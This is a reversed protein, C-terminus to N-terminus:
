QNKNLSHLSCGMASFFDEIRYPKLRFKQPETNIPDIPFFKSEEFNYGYLEYNLYSSQPLFSNPVTVKYYEYQPMLTFEYEGSVDREYRSSLRYWFINTFFSENLASIEWFEELCYIFYLKYGTHLLANPKFDRYFDIRSLLDYEPSLCDSNKVTLRTYIVNLGKRRWYWGKRVCPNMFVSLEAFCNAGKKHALIKDCVKPINSRNFRFLEKFGPGYIPMAFKSTVNSALLHLFLEFDYNYTIIKDKNKM